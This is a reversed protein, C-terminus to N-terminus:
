RFDYQSQYRLQLGGFINQLGESRGLIKVRGEIWSLIMVCVQAGDGEVGGLLVYDM